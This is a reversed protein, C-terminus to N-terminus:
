VYHACGVGKSTYHTLALALYLMNGRGLCPFHLALAYALTARLGYRRSSAAAFTQGDVLCPRKSQSAKRNCCRYGTTQVTFTGCALKPHYRGKSLAHVTSLSAQTLNIAVAVTTM